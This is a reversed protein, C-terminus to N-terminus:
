GFFSPRRSLRVPLPLPRFPMGARKEDLLAVLAEVGMTQHSGDERSRVAIQGSTEEKEGYVILYPAWEQEGHRVKKGVREDRDDLDARVQHAALTACLELAPEVFTHSVPIVRVQTPALWFPFRPALGRAQDRAINELIACLAREISGFSSAHIIVPCPRKYGDEDVYGIDFREGDKVDWQVTSVQVNAGDETLCQYENKMAYYHSMRPMLKFFAPVGMQVGLGMLWERNEEFFAETGEWGLVWRGPAIVRDMLRAFELCLTQFERRAEKVSACAAHMDTMLFNRVRKLGSVEGEQENRFCSAEEYVKLPSQRHSFRVGHM